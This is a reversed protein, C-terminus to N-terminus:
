FLDKQLHFSFVPIIITMEIFNFRLHSFAPFIIWSRSFSASFDAENKTKFFQQAFATIKSFDIPKHKNFM